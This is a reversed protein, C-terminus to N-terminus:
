FRELSIKEILIFLIFKTAQSLVEQTASSESQQPKEAHCEEVM